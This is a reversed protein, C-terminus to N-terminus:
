NIRKLEKKVKKRGKKSLMLFPMFCIILWGRGNSLKPSAGAMLAMIYGFFGVIMSIGVWILSLMLLIMFVGIFLKAIM